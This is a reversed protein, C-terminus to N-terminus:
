IPKMNEQFNAGWVENRMEGEPIPKVMQLTYAGEVKRELISSAFLGILFVVVFTVIFLLWNKWSKRGANNSKSDM